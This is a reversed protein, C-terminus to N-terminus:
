QMDIHHFTKDGVMYSKVFLEDRMVLYGGSPLLSSANKLLRTYETLSRAVSCLCFSVLVVDFAEVFDAGLPFEESVDCTVVKNVSKKIHSIQREIWESVDKADATEAAFRFMHEWNFHGEDGKIWGRIVDLNPPAFDAM